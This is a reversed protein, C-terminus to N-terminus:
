YQGSIHYNIGNMVPLLYDYLIPPSTESTDCTTIFFAKLIYMPIYIYIYINPKNKLFTLNKHIQIQLKSNYLM